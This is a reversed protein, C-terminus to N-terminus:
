QPDHELRHAAVSPQQEPVQVGVEDVTVRQPAQLGTSQVAILSAEVHQLPWHTSRRCVVLQPVSQVLM